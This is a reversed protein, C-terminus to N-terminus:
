KKSPHNNLPLKGGSAKAERLERLLRKNNTRLLNREERLTECESTLRENEKTLREQQHTLADIHHQDRSIVKNQASHHIRLSKEQIFIPPYLWRAIARRLRLVM